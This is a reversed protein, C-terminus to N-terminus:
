FDSMGIKYADIIPPSRRPNVIKNFGMLMLMINKSFPQYQKLSKETVKFRIQLSKLVADSILIKSRYSLIRNIQESVKYM